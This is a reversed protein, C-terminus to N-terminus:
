HDHLGVLEQNLTQSSATEYSALPMAEVELYLEEHQRDCM